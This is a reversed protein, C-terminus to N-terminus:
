IQMNMIDSYASVLRNRVQLTAQFGIQAKQMSVMTEELSVTPNDFQLDRQLRTAEAQQASVSKLAQAMADGFSAGATAAPKVSLPQGNAALGARAAAQAFDFPRLKLEM